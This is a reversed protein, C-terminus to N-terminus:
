VIEEAIIQDAPKGHLEAIEDLSRPTEPEAQPEPRLPMGFKARLAAVDKDIEDNFRRVRAGIEEEASRKREIRIVHLRMEPPLRPHFYVLDCWVRGTCAMLGQMQWYYDSKVGDVTRGSQRGMLIDLMTSISPCKIEILGSKGVLGDPSGGFSPMSPHDIFGTQEVRVDMAFEYAGRAIPEWETGWKMPESMFHETVMGTLREATLEAKYEDRGAYPKGTKANVEIVKYLPSCTVKGLRQEHWQATGQEIM